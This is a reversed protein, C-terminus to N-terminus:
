LKFALLKTIVASPELHEKFYAAANTGLEKIKESDNILDNIKNSYDEFYNEDVYVVHINNVLPSPLINKHNTSIIAKGM